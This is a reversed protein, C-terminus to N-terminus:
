FDFSSAYSDTVDGNANVTVDIESVFGEPGAVDSPILAESWVEVTFLAVYITLPQEDLPLEQKEGSISVEKILPSNQPLTHRLPYLLRRLQSYLRDREDRNEHILEVVVSEYRPDAWYSASALLVGNADVAVADGAFGAYTTRSAQDPADNSLAVGIQPLVGPYTPWGQVVPIRRSQHGGQSSGDPMVLSYLAIGPPIEFAAPLPLGSGDQPFVTSAQCAENLLDFVLTEANPIFAPFLAGLDEPTVQPFLIGPEGIWQSWGFPLGSGDPDFTLGGGEHPSVSVSPYTFIAPPV